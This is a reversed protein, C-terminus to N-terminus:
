VASIAGIRVAIARVDLRRLRRRLALAGGWSESIAFLCPGSGSLLLPEPVARRIAAVEPCLEDVIADFANMALERLKTTDVSGAAIAEAARKTRKGDSWASRPLRAFAEATSVRGRPVVLVGFWGGAPLPRVEEGRGRVEAIPGDLFFPVDSGVALSSARVAGDDAVRWLQRLARLVAAADSSGGGLGAAAPIRKRIVVSAADERGLRRALERAARLGLEEEPPIALPPRVIVRWEKSRKVVVRDALSVRAMVSAIDHYGDARRGVVELTLNVKAHAAVEVAKM